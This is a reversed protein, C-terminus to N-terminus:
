DDYLGIIRQGKITIDGEKVLGSMVDFIKGNKLILDPANKGLSNYISQVYSDNM